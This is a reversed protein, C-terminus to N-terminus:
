SILSINRYEKPPFPSFPSLPLSDALNIMPVSMRRFM